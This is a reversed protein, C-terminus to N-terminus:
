DAPRELGLARAELELVVRRGHAVQADERERAQVEVVEGAQLDRPRRHPGLDPLHRQAEPAVVEARGHDLLVDDRLRARHELERGLVDLAVDALRAEGRAAAVHPVLPEGGGSSSVAMLSTLAGATRGMTDPAAGHSTSP